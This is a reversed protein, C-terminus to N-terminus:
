KKLNEWLGLTNGEPDVFAASYGMGAVDSKPIAVKGGAEVVKKLYDDISDVQVAFTPAKFNEARLAIGGNIGGPTKPVYTEKDMEVTSAMVYNSGDPMAFDELKWGFMSSYFKKARELDDVPIEFHVVPDM